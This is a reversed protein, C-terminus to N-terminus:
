FRQGLSELVSERDGIHMGVVLSQSEELVTRIAHGGPVEGVGTHGASDEVLVLNRIFYPGHAGSLNLLMSDFGAVPVVRMSLVRPTDTPPLSQDRREVRM